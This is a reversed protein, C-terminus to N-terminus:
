SARPGISRASNIDRSHVFIIVFQPDANDSRAVNNPGAMQRSELFMRLDLNDGDRIQGVFARLIKAAFFQRLRCRYLIPRVQDRQRVDVYDPNACRRVHM